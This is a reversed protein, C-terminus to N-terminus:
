SCGISRRSRSRAWSRSQPFSRDRNSADDVETCSAVDDIGLVVFPNRTPVIILLSRETPPSLLLNDRDGGNGGSGDRGRGRDGGGRRRREGDGDVVEWEAVLIPSDTSNECLDKPASITASLSPCPSQPVLALLSKLILSEAVPPSPPAAISCGLGMVILLVAGMMMSAEIAGEFVNISSDSDSNFGNNNRIAGCAPEPDNGGRGDNICM